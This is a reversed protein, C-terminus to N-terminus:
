NLNANVPSTQQEARLITQNITYSLENDDVYPDDILSLVYEGANANYFLARGCVHQIFVILDREYLEQLKDKLEIEATVAPQDRLEDWLEGMGELDLAAVVLEPTLVQYHFLHAFFGGLDSYEPRAFNRVLAEKLFFTRSSM